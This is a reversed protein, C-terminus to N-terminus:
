WLLSTTGAMLVAIFFANPSKAAVSITSFRSLTFTCISVLKFSFKSPIYKEFTCNVIASISKSSSKSFAILSFCTASCCAKFALFTVIWTSSCALCVLIAASASASAILILAWARSLLGFSTCYSATCFHSPLIGWYMNPLATGKMSRFYTVVTVTYYTDKHRYTVWASM